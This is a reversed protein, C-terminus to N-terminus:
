AFATLLPEWNYPAYTIQPNANEPISQHDKLFRLMGETGGFDGSYWAFIKSLEVTNKQADFQTEIALFSETALQLQQEIAEPEYYRIPPCSAGGCNLAFHIRPDFQLVRFQKEFPSVNWSSLYGKGWKIKSQRILGHEVNDLSLLEGAVNIKLASFHRWRGLQYTIVAPNPRLLLVAFANYINIWFALRDSNTALHQQLEKQSAAVLQQIWEQTSSNSKVALLLKQSVKVLNNHM